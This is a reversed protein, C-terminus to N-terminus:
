EGVTLFVVALAVFIGIVSPWDSLFLLKETSDTSDEHLFTDKIETITANVDSTVNVESM